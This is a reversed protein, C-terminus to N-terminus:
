KRLDKIKLIGGSDQAIYLYGEDDAALGEQKDGPFAYARVLRGGLTVEALINDTDSLIDLRRTRADYRIASPDDMRFPLVRLIRAEGDGAASRLPVLLEVVCSPDWQNGAYFTGGEPHRPDSVFALSEIGNDYAERRKELFEARGDFARNVPFRRTVERRDPEFELIVDDGEVIIYLRGTAPDVTIDELDGPVRASALPRGDKTMEYVRGEDSVVFLTGRGPHFCIGSPEPIGQQDIDGGFGPSGLWLYPFRISAADPEQCAAGILLGALILGAEPRFFAARLRGSTRFTTRKAM